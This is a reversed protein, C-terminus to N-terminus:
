MIRRPRFSGSGPGSATPARISAPLPTRCCVRGQGRALDRAHQRRVKELHAQLPAKVAAPLMTVRDKGGKGDRVAIENRQVDADKVRLCLCELLRLGSGSLLACVLRPTGGMEDLVARVEQRTLVVPLRRPRRARVVGEIQGLPRNLVKDYLFLLAALAQNQTSAAVREHVALHTLFQNVEPEGMEVPYRKGHFLIFRRIWAVYAQETSPSYHRARIALRAQDLLRPPLAVAESIEPEPPPERNDLVVVPRLSPEVEVPEGAFLSLLHAIAGETHPVTWYKEEPHWRRGAVTKIKSM